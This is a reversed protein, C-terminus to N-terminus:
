TQKFLVVDIAENSCFSYRLLFHLVFPRANIVLSVVITHSMQIAKFLMTLYQSMPVIQIVVSNFTVLAVNQIVCVTIAVEYSKSCCSGCSHCHFLFSLSSLIIFGLCM